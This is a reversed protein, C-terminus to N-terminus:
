VGVECFMKTLNDLNDFKRDSGYEMLCRINFMNAQYQVQVQM